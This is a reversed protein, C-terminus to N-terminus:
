KEEKIKTEQQVCEQAQYTTGNSNIPGIKWKFREITLSQPAQSPSLFHFPPDRDIQRTKQREQTSERMKQSDRM